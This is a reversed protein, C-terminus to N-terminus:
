GKGSMRKANLEYRVRRENNEQEVDIDKCTRPIDYKTVVWARCEETALLKTVRHTGM